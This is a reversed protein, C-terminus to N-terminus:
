EGIIDNLSEVSSLSNDTSLIIADKILGEAQDLYDNANPDGIKCLAKGRGVAANALDTVRLALIAEEKNILGTNKAVAASDYLETITVEVSASRQYCDLSSCAGLMLLAPIVLMMGKPLGKGGRIILQKAVLRGRIAALGGIISGMITVVELTQDILLVLETQDTSDLQYGMLAAIGAFAAVIGGWIGTSKYWKKEKNM